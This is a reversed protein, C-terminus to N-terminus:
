RTLGVDRAWRVALVRDHCGTKAYVHELHKRVTRESIRLVRAISVATLGDGLLRLVETERVSLGVREVAEVADQTPPRPVTCLRDLLALLPQLRVALGLAADDFGGDASRTVGWAPVGDGAFLDLLAVSAALLDQERDTLDAPRRSPDAVAREPDPRRSM